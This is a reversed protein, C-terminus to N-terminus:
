SQTLASVVTSPWLSQLWWLVPCCHIQGTIPQAQCLFYLYLLREQPLPATMFVLQHSSTLTCRLRGMQNVRLPVCHELWCLVGLQTWSCICVCDWWVYLPLALPCIWLTLLNCHGAHTQTDTQTDTPTVRSDTILLRTHFCESSLSCM